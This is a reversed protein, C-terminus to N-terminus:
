KRSAATREEKEGGDVRRRKGSDGDITGPGFETARARARM